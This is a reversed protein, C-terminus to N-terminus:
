RRGWSGTRAGVRQGPRRRWRGPRCRSSSPRRSRGGCPRVAPAVRADLTLNFEVVVSGDRAPRPHGAHRATPTAPGSAVAAARDAGSPPGCSAADGVPTLVPLRAARARRGAGHRGRPRPSRRPRLHRSRSALRDLSSPCSTRLAHPHRRLADAIRRAPASRATPRAISRRTRRAPSPPESTPCRAPAPRAGARARPRPRRPRGTPASRDAHSPSGDARRGPRADAERARRGAARRETSRGPPEDTAARPGRALGALWAWFLVALVPPLDVHRCITARDVHRPVARLPTRGGPYGRRRIASSRNAAAASSRRCRRAGSAARIRGARRSSTTPWSCRSPGPMGSRARISASRRDETIRQPGGPVPLVVRAWSMAPVVVALAKTGSDATVAVRSPRGRPGPWPGRLPQALPVLPVM